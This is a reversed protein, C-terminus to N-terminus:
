KGYKKELYADAPSRAKINNTDIEKGAKINSPSNKFNPYKELVQEMSQSIDTEESTYKKSLIIFDDVLDSKVGKSLAEIKNNSYSLKDAYEKEKTTYTEELEKQRIDYKSNLNSEYETKQKDVATNIAKSVRRDFESSFTKDKLLDEFNYKSDEVQTDPQNPKAESQNNSTNEVVENAVENTKVEEVVQNNEEAM